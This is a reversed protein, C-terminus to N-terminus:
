IPSWFFQLKSTTGILGAVSSTIGIDQIVAAAAPVSFRQHVMANRRVNTGSHDSVDIFGVRDVTSQCEVAATVPIPVEAAAVSSVRAVIFSYTGAGIAGASGLIYRTSSHTPGTWVGAIKFQWSVTAVTAVAPMIEGHVIFYGHQYASLDVGLKIDNTAAAIPVYGSHLPVWAEPFFM